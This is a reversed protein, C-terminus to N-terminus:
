DFDRTVSVVTGSKVRVMVPTSVFWSRSDDLKAISVDPFEEMAQGYPPVELLLLRPGPSAAARAVCLEVVERCKPCSHHFMLIDWSENAMEVPPSISAAIPLPKGIWDAPSLLVISEAANDGFLTASVWPMWSLRTWFMPLAIVLAVAAGLRVTRSHRFWSEGPLLLLGTAAVIDVLVTLRPPVSL